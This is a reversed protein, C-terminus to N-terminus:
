PYSVLLFSVCCLLLLFLCLAPCLFSRINLELVRSSCHVIAASANVRVHVPQPTCASDSAPNARHQHELRVCDGCTPDLPIVASGRVGGWFYITHLACAAARPQRECLGGAWVVNSRGWVHVPSAGRPTVRAFDNQKGITMM